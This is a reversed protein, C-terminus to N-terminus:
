AVDKVNSLDAALFARAMRKLERADSATLVRVSAIPVLAVDVVGHLAHRSVPVLAVDVVAPTHNSIMHNPIVTATALRQELASTHADRQDSCTECLWAVSPRGCDACDTGDYRVDYADDDPPDISFRSM